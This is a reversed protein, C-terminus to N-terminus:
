ESPAYAVSSDGLHNWGPLSLASCLGQGHSGRKALIVASTPLGGADVTKQVDNLPLTLSRLIGRNTQVPLSLASSLGQGHSEVAQSRQIVSVKLGGADM